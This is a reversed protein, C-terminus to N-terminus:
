SSESMRKLLAEAEAVFDTDGAARALDRAREAEARAQNGRGKKWDFEALRLPPKAWKPDLDASHRLASEGDSESGGFLRPLRMLMEGKAEWAHAHGPELVLTKDLLGKLKSIQMAQASIGTREAKRGLTVFLAYHADAVGPDAAIAQEALAIGSDYAAQWGTELKDAKKGMALAEDALRQAQDRRDAQASATVPACCLALALAAAIPLRTPM